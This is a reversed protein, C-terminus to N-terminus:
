PKPTPRDLAGRRFLVGATLFHLAYARVSYLGPKDPTIVIRYPLPTQRFRRVVCGSADCRSAFWQIEGTCPIGVPSLDAPFCRADVVVAGVDGPMTMTVLAMWPLLPAAAQPKQAQAGAAGGLVLGAAMILTRM